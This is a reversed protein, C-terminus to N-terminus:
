HGWNKGIAAGALFFGVTVLVWWAAHEYGISWLFVCFHVAVASLCVLCIPKRATVTVMRFFGVERRRHDSTSM